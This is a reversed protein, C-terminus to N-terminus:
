YRLTNTEEIDRSALFFSVNEMFQEITKLQRNLPLQKTVVNPSQGEAQTGGNHKVPKERTVYIENIHVRNGISKIQIKHPKM